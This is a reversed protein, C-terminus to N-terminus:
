CYIYTGSRRRMPPTPPPLDLFLHICRVLISSLDSSMMADVLQQPGESFVQQLPLARLIIVCVSVCVLLPHEKALCLVNLMYYTSFSLVCAYTYICTCPQSYLTCTYTSRKAKRAGGSITKSMYM